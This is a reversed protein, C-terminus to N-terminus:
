ISIGDSRKSIVISRLYMSQSFSIVIAHDSSMFNTLALSQLAMCKTHWGIFRSGWTSFDTAQSDNYEGWSERRITIIKLNFRCIVVM